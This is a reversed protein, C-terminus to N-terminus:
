YGFTIDGVPIDNESHLEGFYRNQRIAPIGGERSTKELMDRAALFTLLFNGNHAQIIM